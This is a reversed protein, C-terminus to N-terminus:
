NRKKRGSCEPCGCKSKGTRSKIVADWEHGKPCKWWVKRHAGGGVKEPTLDGNKTPHWEAAIYPFRTALDNFGALIVRNACIPCGNGAVRSSVTATWKHGEKKCIWNVRKDSGARVLDPTISGNAEQNWEEILHPAKNSISNEKEGNIYNEWIQVSDREVDIPPCELGAKEFLCGIVENLSQKKRPHFLYYIQDGNILFADGEYVEILRYGAEVLAARKQTEKKGDRNHYRRGNYEIGTKEEPLLIDVEKGNVKARSHAQTVMSFYYFIAQEPFSTHRESSCIPCKNGAVRSSITAPWSHGKKCKWWVKINSGSPITWPTQDTNRETDWEKALIPYNDGLSGKKKIVSLRHAQPANARGCKSCGRGANRSSILAKWEYGCTKCKWWASKNSGPLVNSPVLDGNKEYLWEAALDPNVTQLDNEGPLVKQGACYPCGIGQTRSSITAHWIHGKKDKWFVVQDSGKTFMDPSSGPNNEYDWEAALQPFLTAIDNYGKVVKKGACIPCGNGNIKNNITQDYGFGCKNCKWFVKKNSHELYEFPTKTNKEYDWLEVLEPHTEGLSPGKLLLKKVKTEGRKKKACKPCGEGKTRHYISQAFPTGCESCVWYVKKSAGPLFECPEKKNKAYDWELLLNPYLTALDNEGVIPRKGACYPCGSRDLCRHDVRAKWSHGKECKWYAEKTSGQTVLSSDTNGNKEVDWERYIEEIESLKKGDRM